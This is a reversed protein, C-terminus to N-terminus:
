NPKTVNRTHGAAQLKDLYSQWLRDYEAGLKYLLAWTFLGTDHGDSFVPAIAYNGVPRIETITVDEKGVQLVEQGPGHGVAEASPTYVRLYEYPLKFTKGDEYSVELIRSSQHLKIETPIPSHTNTTM